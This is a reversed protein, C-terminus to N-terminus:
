WFYFYFAVIVGLIIITNVIDWINWSAKTAAREEATSAAYTYKLQEASPAKTFLSILVMVVICLFFLLVTYHLWNVAAIKYIIGGSDLYYQHIGDKVQSLLESAYTKGDATLGSFSTMATNVKETLVAAVDSPFSHNITKSVTTLDDLMDNKAKDSNIYLVSKIMGGIKGVLGYKVNLILRFMGVSFGTIMGWFAGKANMRRWFVGLLFVSAIAPALLGQVGQLYEYLVKGLGLMVPIWVVGLVVVTATAARGVRVYHKPEQNPRMKKYFDEVFLMASSNFLSALSSMLAALLGCVVIGTIGAPLLKAVMSAFASDSSGVQLLGKQNLAFAIMGPVMFIFVPLLKFYGALIAGRRSQQQNRGSLVRQVIYQDTCWYWFGIIASGLLVGTWPFDPDAAPRVLKLNSGVINEVEAWGGVKAIGVILIVISGFLLVPTQLVSTFLVARMGGLITYIGTILVLGMASVWFFDIEKGFLTISEVNFVTDFVVGGAYVTVAVKTLVYSVLSIISLVSRSGPSFRRELFEPMTYVKIRDYFPVFVWGLVLILWAHMEWHAMAMGSIFGAGALGVLHESGINSAFISSGISLWGANKGALFYDTTNEEKQKLVWVIIGILGMFFLGLVIWDLTVM